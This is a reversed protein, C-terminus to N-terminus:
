GLTKIKACLQSIKDKIYLCDEPSRDELNVFELVRKEDFCPWDRDFMNWINESYIGGYLQKLTLDFGVAKTYFTLCHVTSFQVAVNMAGGIIGVVATAEQSLLALLHGPVQIIKVDAISNLFEFNEEYDNNLTANIIVRYGNKSFENIIELIQNESFKEHSINVINFLIFDRNESTKESLSLDKALNYDESLYYKPQEPKISPPLYLLMRLLTGYAVGHVLHLDCFYPYQVIHLHRITNVPFSFKIVSSTQDLRNKTPWLQNTECSTPNISEGIEKIIKKELFIFSKNRLDDDIFIRILESDEKSSIIKVSPHILLFSRMFSLICWKDGFSAHLVFYCFSPDLSFRAILPNSSSTDNTKFIQRMFSYFLGSLNM